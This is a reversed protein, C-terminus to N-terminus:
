VKIIDPGHLSMVYDIQSKPSIVNRLLGLTKILISEDNDTMLTNIRQMSVTNLILTKVKHDTQFAM